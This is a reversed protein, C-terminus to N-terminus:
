VQMARQRAPPAPSPVRYEISQVKYKIGAYCASPGTSGPFCSSGAPCPLCDGVSSSGNASSYTGGPCPTALPSGAACYSGPPCLQPTHTASGCYSGAPCLGSCQPSSQSSTSNDSGYLGPACAYPYESHGGSVLTARTASSDPLIWRGLPAPLYYEVTGSVIYIALGSANALSKALLSGARLTVHGGLVHLADGHGAAAENDQCPSRILASHHPILSSYHTGLPM